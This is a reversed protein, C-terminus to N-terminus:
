FRWLWTATAYPKADQSLIPTERDESVVGGSLAIEGRALEYRAFLGAKAERHEVARTGRYAHVPLEKSLVGAEVGGSLEPTMRWGLRALALSTQRHSSWGADLQAFASAGIDLWLELAGKPSLHAGLDPVSPDHPATVTESWAIGAFAKATLAGLKTQYGALAEAFTVQSTYRLPGISGDALRALSDYHYRGAGGVARVRLGDDRMAGFPAHTIGTWVSAGHRRGEAGTWTETRSQSPDVTTSTTWGQARAPLAHLALAVAAAAVAGVRMRTHGGGSM